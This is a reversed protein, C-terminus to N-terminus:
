PSTTQKAVPSNQQTANFSPARTAGATVQELNGLVESFRELRDSNKLLRSSLDGDQVKLKALQKARRGEDRLIKSLYHSGRLQDSVASLDDCRYARQRLFHGKPDRKMDDFGHPCCNRDSCAAFRRGGPTNMIAEADDKRLLADVGPLLMFHTNGGGSKPKPPKYWNSADFRERAAVGYSLASAAGFAVIALGALGGVGDAVLPKGLSHFDQAAAIYKRTGAATGNAGFGSIRLLIGDAPINHLPAILKRRDATDSFTKTPIMVPYDIAITSGGESDLARRLAVCNNLDVQFWPDNPDPLFHSPAHVRSFGHRVAFRAIETIVAQNSGASLQSQTLVGSPNAWPANKVKGQHRGIASLEAVNTDLVLEAGKSKLAVVLDAQEVFHGAEIIFRSYPLRDGALMDELRRHESVRLFRMIPSPPHLYVVNSM